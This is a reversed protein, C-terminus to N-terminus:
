SVRCVYVYTVHLTDYVEALVEYASTLRSAFRVTLDNVAPFRRVLLALDGNGLEEEGADVAKFLSGLLYVGCFVCFGVLTCTARNYHVVNQLCYCVGTARYDSHIQRVSQMLTLASVTTHHM